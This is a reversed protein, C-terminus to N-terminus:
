HFICQVFLAHVNIKLSIARKLKKITQTKQLVTSFTLFQCQSIFNCYLMQENVFFNFFNIDEWKKNLSDLSLVLFVVVVFKMVRM